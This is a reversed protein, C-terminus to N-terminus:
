LDLNKKRRSYEQDDIEGRAYRENLIELSSSEIPRKKQRNNKAIMIVSLVIVLLLVAPIPWFFGSGAIGSCVSGYM